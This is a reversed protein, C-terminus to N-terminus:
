SLGREMMWIHVYTMILLNSPRYVPMYIDRIPEKGHLARIRADFRQERKQIKPPKSKAGYGGEYFCVPSEVGGVCVVM